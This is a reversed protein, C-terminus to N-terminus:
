YPVSKIMHDAKETAIKQVAAGIKDALTKVEGSTANDKTILLQMQHRADRLDDNLSIMTRHHDRCLAMVQTKQQDTLDLKGMAGQCCQASWALIPLSLLLGAMVVTAIIKM